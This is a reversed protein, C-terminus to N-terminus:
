GGGGGIKMRPDIIVDYTAGTTTDTCAVVIDYACVTNRMGPNMNGSRAPNSAGKGGRPKDTRFPWRPCRNPSGPRSSPHKREVEIASADSDETLVWDVTEGQDLDLDWPYVEATMRGGACQVKVTVTAKGQARAVPPPSELRPIAATAVAHGAAAFGAALSLAIGLLAIRRM